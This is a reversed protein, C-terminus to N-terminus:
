NTLLFREFGYHRDIRGSKIQFDLQYLKELIQYLLDIEKFKYNDLALKVPYEKIRLIQSIEQRSLRKLDLLRIKLILRIQRALSSIMAVPEVNSVLLDRYINLTKKYNGDVYANILTFLNDELPIPVLDYVDQLTIFNGNILLKQAYNTFLSVDSQSRSILEPIASPEIEAGKSNFYEKIYRHWNERDLDNLQYITAQDKIKKALPSDALSQDIVCFILIVESHDTELFKELTDFNHKKDIKEKNFRSLFLANEVVIVKKETMLSVSEAESIVEQILSNNFDFSHVGFYEEQNFTEKIIKKVRTKIMAEQLGFLIYIM